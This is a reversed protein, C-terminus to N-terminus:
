FSFKAGLLLGSMNTDFLFGNDDSYDNKLYRYGGIMAVRPSLNYGAGGYFQGTVHTGFGGGIDFLTSLFFKPSLNVVGHGGVVPAAWTKRAEVDFGPLTGTTFSLINKVSTVRVGGLLDFSGGEKEVVRVGGMPNFITMNVSVKSRDYLRGPTDREETLKTWLLDNFLILRGRRAEFSGMFGAKFHSLVDGISLDIDAVRGRAGVNGSLATLYLYPAFAFHWNRDSANAQTTASPSDKRWMKTKAPNNKATWLEQGDGKDENQKVLQEGPAGKDADDAIPSQTQGFAAMATVLILAALSAGSLIKRFTM